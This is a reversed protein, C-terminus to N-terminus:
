NSTFKALYHAFDEAKFPKSIFGRAGLAMTKGVTAQDRDASFMVVFADANASLINNLVDFGDQEDNHYHIDLFIIDPNHVSSNALAERANATTTVTGFKQLHHAVMKSTM